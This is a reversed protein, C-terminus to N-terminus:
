DRLGASGSKLRNRARADAPRRKAVSGTPTVIGTVLLLAWKLLWRISVISRGLV